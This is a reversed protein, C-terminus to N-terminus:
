IHQCLNGETFYFISFEEPESTKAVYYRIGNDEFKSIVKYEKNGFKFNRADYLIIEPLFREECNGKKKIHEYFDSEFMWDIKNWQNIYFFMTSNNGHINGDSIGGLKELETVIEHGRGPVGKYYVKKNQQTQTEM